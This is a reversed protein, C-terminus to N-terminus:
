ETPESKPETKVFYEEYGAAALLGFMLPAILGIVLMVLGGIIGFVLGAHPIRTLLAFIAFVVTIGISVLFDAMFMRGKYGATKKISLRLADTASIEPDQTIIFPVFRYSYLKIIAFVPGVIPILGWILVWLAMWGMGGAVKFFRKFGAFLDDSNFDEGRYGALFVAMMGACLVFAIPVFIIPLVGFFAAIVVLLHFLLTMGWLRIPKKGLVDLAKTILDVAGVGPKRTNSKPAKYPQTGGVPMGCNPCFKEGALEKGCNTCHPM